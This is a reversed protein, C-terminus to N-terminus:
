PSATGDSFQLWQAAADQLRQSDPMTTPEGSLRCAPAEMKWASWQSAESGPKVPGFYSVLHGQWWLAEETHSAVPCEDDALVDPMENISASLLQRNRWSFEQQVTTKCTGQGAKEFRARILLLHSDGRTMSVRRVDGHAPDLAHVVPPLVALSEYSADVIQSTWWDSDALRRMWELYAQAQINERMSPQGQSNLALIADCSEVAYPATPPEQDLHLTGIGVYPAPFHMSVAAQQAPERHVDKLDFFVNGPLEGPWFPPITIRVPGALHYRMLGFWRHEPLPFDLGDATRRLDANRVVYERWVRKLCIRKGTCYGIRGTWLPFAFAPEYTVQVKVEPAAMIAALKQQDLDLNGAFPVRFVAVPDARCVTGLLLLVLLWGRCFTRIM